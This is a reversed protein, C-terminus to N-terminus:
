GLMDLIDGAEGTAGEVRAVAELEAAAELQAARAAHKPMLEDLTRQHLTERRAALEKTKCEGAAPVAAVAAPAATAAAAAATAATAATVEDEEDVVDVEDVGVDVEDVGVDVEDVEDVGVDVEGEGQKGQEGQEGEGSRRRLNRRFCLHHARLSALAVDTLAVNAERMDHAFRGASEEDGEPSPDADVDVDSDSDSDSDSGSQSDSSSPSPSLSPSPSCLLSPSRSALDDLTDSDDSETSLDGAGEDGGQGASQGM